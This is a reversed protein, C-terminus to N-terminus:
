QNVEVEYLKVTGTFVTIRGSTEQSVKVKVGAELLRQEIYKAVDAGQNFSFHKIPVGDGSYPISGQEYSCVRKIRLKLAEIGRVERMLDDLEVINEFLNQM